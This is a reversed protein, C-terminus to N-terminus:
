PDAEGHVARLLEGEVVVLAPGNGAKPIAHARLFRDLRRQASM